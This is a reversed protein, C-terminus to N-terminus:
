NPCRKWMTIGNLDIKLQDGAITFKETTTYPENDGPTCNFAISYTPFQGSVNQPACLDPGIVYDSVRGKKLENNTFVMGYWKSLSKKDLTKICVSGKGAWSGVLEKPITMAGGKKQQAQLASLNTKGEPSNLKAALTFYEEAKLLDKQFGKGDRYLEGINNHAVGSKLKAAEQYAQIADPLRNAKELARGYQFWLRALQSNEELAKKCAPIALNPNIKNFSLGATQKQPDLPSAALQDCEKIQAYVNLPLLLAVLVVRMSPLFKM